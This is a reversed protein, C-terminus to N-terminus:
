FAIALNRLRARLHLEDWAVIANIVSLLLAILLLCFRVALALAAPNDFGAAGIEAMWYVYALWGLPPILFIHLRGGRGFAIYWRMAMTVAALVFSVALLWAPPFPLWIPM